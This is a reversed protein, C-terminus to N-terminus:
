DTLDATTSLWHSEHDIQAAAARCAIGQVHNEGTILVGQDGNSSVELINNFMREDRKPRRNTSIYSSFGIAWGMSGALLLIGALISRSLMLTALFFFLVVSWSMLSQGLSLCRHTEVRDMDVPIWEVGYEESLKRAARRGQAQGDSKLTLNGGKGQIILKLAYLINSNVFSLFRLTGLIVAIPNKSFTWFGFALVSTDSEPSEHFIQDVPGNVQEDVLDPVRRDTHRVGLITLESPAM